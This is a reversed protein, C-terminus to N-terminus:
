SGGGLPGPLRVMVVEARVCVEGRATLTCTVLSKRATQERITARLLLPETISTPRLYALQLSATVLAIEPPTTIARGEARYASAAATCASHCDMITALIGGNVIGPHAQHYPQPQWTCIGEEGEWYSRIQLGEENRIGCGWCQHIGLEAFEEQFSRSM